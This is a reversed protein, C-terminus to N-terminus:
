SVSYAEPNGPNETCLYLLSRFNRAKEDMDTM